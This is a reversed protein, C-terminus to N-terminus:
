GLYHDGHLHSIFIHDIKQFAVKYKRLQLQTGEACDIMMYREMINVVQSTPNRLLTPTASGCGLITIEFKM